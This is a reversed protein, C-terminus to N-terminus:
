DELYNQLSTGIITAWGVEFTERAFENFAIVPFSEIGVHTLKLRSKDGETFLEFTVQSDGSYGQYRWTYSIKKNVVVETIKCLHVYM